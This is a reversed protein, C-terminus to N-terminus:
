PEGKSANPEWTFQEGCLPMFLLETDGMRIRDWAHFMRSQGAPLPMGNVYLVNTSSEAGVYYENTERFYGVWAVPKKSFKPDDVNVDLSTSRGIRNYNAHLRYDKGACPGKVCVLWGVV